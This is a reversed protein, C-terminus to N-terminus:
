ATEVSEPVTEFYNRLMYIAVPVTQATYVIVLGVLSGRLGLRTFGVFLPIAMLIAPFLYAALFVGSVQRRGIFPLRAIAYAGPIGIILALAVSALAVVASNALFRGFGQGGSAVPSLVDVYTQLTFESPKVIMSAPDRLLAEIPKVSLLVMYYFPVLTAILFGIIVVWRLIRFTRSQIHHRTWRPYPTRQQPPAAVQSPPTVIQTSM